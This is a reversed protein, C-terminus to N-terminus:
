NHPKLNSLDIGGFFINFIIMYAFWDTMYDFRLVQYFDWKSKLSIGLRGKWRKYFLFHIRDRLDAQNVETITWDYNSNQREIRFNAIIINGNQFMDGTEKNREKMLEGLNQFDEKVEEKNAVKSAIQENAQAVLDRSEQMKQKLEGYSPMSMTVLLLSQKNQEFQFDHIWSFFIDEPTVAINNRDAIDVESLSKTLGQICSNSLLGDLDQWDGSQISSTVVHVAQKIGETTEDIDVGFEVPFPRNPKGSMIMTAIRNMSLAHVINKADGGSVITPYRSEQSSMLRQFSCFYVPKQVSCVTKVARSFIM